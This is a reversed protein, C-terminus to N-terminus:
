DKIYDRQVLDVLTRLHETEYALHNVEHWFTAFAMGVAHDYRPGPPEEGAIVAKCGVPQIGNDALKLLVGAVYLSWRPLPRRSVTQKKTASAYNFVAKSELDPLYVTFVGNNVTNGALWMDRGSACVVWDATDIAYTEQFTVLLRLPPNMEIYM